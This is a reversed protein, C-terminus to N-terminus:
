RPQLLVAKTFNSTPQGASTDCHGAQFIRTDCAVVCDYTVERNHTASDDYPVLYAAGNRAPNVARAGRARRASRAETFGARFPAAYWTGCSSEAVSKL